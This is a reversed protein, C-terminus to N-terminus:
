IIHMLKGIIIFKAANTTAIFIFIVPNVSMSSIIDINIIQTKAVNAAADNLLFKSFLLEM